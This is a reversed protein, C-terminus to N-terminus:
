PNVYVRENIEHILQQFEKEKQQCLYLSFLDINILIKIINLFELLLKGNICFTYNGLYHDFNNPSNLVYKIQQVMTLKYQINHHFFM